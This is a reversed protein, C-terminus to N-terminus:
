QAPTFDGGRDKTHWETGSDDVDLGCLKLRQVFNQRSSFDNNLDLLFVGGIDSFLRTTKDFRVLITTKPFRAMAFGAEFIVNPRPQLTFNKEHEPEQPGHFVPRLRAEDDPTLLVIVAQALTFAQDLIEKITASANNTKDLAESWEIPELNLVRLFRIVANYLKRDRGFVVFVRRNKATAEKPSTATGSLAPTGEEDVYAVNQRFWDRFITGNATVHGDSRETVVGHYGLVRLVGDVTAGQPLAARLRRVEVADRGAEAILSFAAKSAEGFAKVWTVFVDDRNRVFRAASAAVANADLADREEWLIGLIGQLIWPHGGSLALVQEQLEAPLRDDFGYAILKRAEETPLFTLAEPELNNLPSGQAILQSLGGVGSVIVRMRTAIPSTMLLHRLNHFCEDNPLYHAAVELEDILLVCVWNPGYVGSMEASVSQVWALFSQYSSQATDAPNWVPANTGQVLLKAISMFFEANSHPIAGQLDLFRPLFQLTGGTKAELDKAIQLLLSTKGCRRGGTIAYSHGNGLGDIIRRRLREYGTFLNGPRSVSYPNRTSM